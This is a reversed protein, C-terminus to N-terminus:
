ALARIAGLVQDVEEPSNLLGPALRAYTTTYPTLTAVINSAGLRTIVGQPALGDVEFCV